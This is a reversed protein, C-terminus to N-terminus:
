IEFYKHGHSYFIFFQFYSALSSSPLVKFLSFFHTLRKPRRSSPRLSRATALHRHVSRRRRCVFRRRSCRRTAYHIPSQPIKPIPFAQLRGFIRPCETGQHRKPEKSNGNDQTTIFVNKRLSFLPKASGADRCLGQLPNVGFPVSLCFGGINTPATFAYFFGKCQKQLVVKTIWQLKTQTTICLVIYFILHAFTKMFIFYFDSLTATHSLQRLGVSLGLAATQACLGAM